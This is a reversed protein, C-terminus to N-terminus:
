EMSKNLNRISKLRSKTSEHANQLISYLDNKIKPNEFLSYIPIERKPISYNAFVTYQKIPSAQITELDIKYFVDDYKDQMVREVEEIFIDKQKNIYRRNKFNVCRASSVIDETSLVGFLLSKILVYLESYQFQSHFKSFLDLRQHHACAFLMAKSSYSLFSANSHYQRLRDIMDLSKEFHGMLLHRELGYYFLFLYGADVPQSIDSLWTLYTYKQCASMKSMHPYYGLTEPRQCPNVKDKMDMMSPESYDMIGLDFVMGGINVKTEKTKGTLDHIGSIWILEKVDEPIKDMRKLITNKQMSNRLITFLGM